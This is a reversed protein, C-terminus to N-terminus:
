SVHHGIMKIFEPDDRLSDLDPDVSMWAFNQVGADIAHRLTDLARHTEGLSAYLCAVNYLMVSDGPSAEMAAQGERVADARRGVYMLDHAYLIRARTDDPNQLLYNPFFDV